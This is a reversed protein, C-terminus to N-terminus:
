TIRFSRSAGCTPWWQGFCNRFIVNEFSDGMQLLKTVIYKLFWCHIHITMSTRTMIFVLYIYLESLTCFSLFCPHVIKATFLVYEELLTLRFMYPRWNVWSTRKLLPWCENSINCVPLLGQAAGWMKQVWGEGSFILTASCRCFDMKKQQVIIGRLIQCSDFNWWLATAGRTPASLSLAAAAAPVRSNAFLAQRSIIM